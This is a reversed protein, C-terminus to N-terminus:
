RGEINRFVRVVREVGADVSFERVYHDRAQAGLNLLGVPGLAAAERVANELADPDGPQAVWGAGSNRIIQAADGRAAVIMPRALAMTTQIKSPTSAEALRSPALSVLHVHGVPLLRPMSEKPRPGLFLVNDLGADAAAKRLRAEATGTGIMVFALDGLNQVRRAVEIVPDLGQANGLAGAYMIVTKGDLGLEQMVAPDPDRPFFLSEDTWLPIYVLKEAPVGQDVLHERVSPSIYAIRDAAEYTRALLWRLARDARRSDRVGRLFGSEYLSDPWLDMLHLLSPAHSRRTAVWTPVSVTPPSSYTWVADVDSLYKGASSATAAFSLYNALRGASSSSYSPYMPVRLVQVGDLNQHERWQQRYGDYTRGRPYNPFGTLVKVKCGRARLGRALVGPVAAPGPEPDYYQSILGIEM